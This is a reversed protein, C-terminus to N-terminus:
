VGIVRLSTYSAGVVVAVALLVVPRRRLVDAKPVAALVFVGVLFGILVKM